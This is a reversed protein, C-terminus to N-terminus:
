AIQPSSGSKIIKIDESWISDLSRSIDSEFAEESDNNKSHQSVKSTISKECFLGPNFQSLIRNSNAKGKNSALTNNFQITTKPVLAHSSSSYEEEVVCNSDDWINSTHM